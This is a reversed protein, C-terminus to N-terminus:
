RARSSTCNRASKRRDGMLRILRRPNKRLTQTASPFIPLRPSRGASWLAALSESGSIASCAIHAMSRISLRKGKSDGAASWYKSDVPVAMADLRIYVIKQLGHYSDMNGDNGG